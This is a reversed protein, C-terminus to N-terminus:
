WCEPADVSGDDDCVELELRGIKGNLSARLWTQYEFLSIQGLFSLNKLIRGIKHMRSSPLEGERIKGGFHHPNPLIAALMALEPVVLDVADADFYRRAARSIGRAGGGWEVINLYIELIREKSVENEMRWTLYAEQLKRAVTRDQKLFLNKVVQQSITSGGRELSGSELNHVMAAQFGTWDFGPHGFFAADEASLLVQPVIPPLQSYSRWWELQAEDLQAPPGATALSRVDANDSDELVRVDGDLSGELRLKEPFESHGDVALEFGFVGDLIAGEVVRTMSAPLGDRFTLANLEEGRVRGEFAVGRGADIMKASFSIPRTAGLVLEGRSLSIVRGPLDVLVHSKIGLRDFVLPRTSFRDIDVSLRRSQMALELEVLGVARNWEVSMTGDVRGPQAPLDLELSNWIPDLQFGDAWIDLTISDRHVKWDVSATGGTEEAIKLKGELLRAVPDFVFESATVRAAFTAQGDSTLGMEDSLFVLKGATRKVNASPTTLRLDERWDPVYIEVDEISFVGTDCELCIDFAGIAAAIPINMAIWQDLRTRKEPVLRFHPTKERHATSLAFTSRDPLSGYGSAHVPVLKSNTRVSARKLKFARRTKLAADVFVHLDHLEVQIGNPAIGRSASPVSPTSPTTTSPEAPTTERKVSAPKEVAGPVVALAGNRVTVTDLELRGELLAGFAPVVDVRAAHLEVAHNRGPIPVRAAVGILRVGYIGHPEITQIELDVNRSAAEATLRDHVLAGIFPQTRALFSLAILLAVLGFGLAFWMRMKEADTQM